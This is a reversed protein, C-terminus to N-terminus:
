IEGLSVALLIVTAETSPSWLPTQTSSLDHSSTTTILYFLFLSPHILTAHIGQMVHM